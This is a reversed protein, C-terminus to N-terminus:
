LFSVLLLLIIFFGGALYYIKKKNRFFQDINNKNEKISLSEPNDIFGKSRGIKLFKNKRHSFIEEPSMEKFSELNKSISEGM